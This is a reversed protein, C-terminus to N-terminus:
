SEYSGGTKLNKLIQKLNNISEELEGNMVKYGEFGNKLIDNFYIEEIELELIINSLNTDRKRTKDLSRRYRVSEPNAEILIYMDFLFYYEQPIGQEFNLIGNNCKNRIPLAYHGSVILDKERNRIFRFVEERLENRESKTLERLLADHTYERRFSDKMMEAFNIVEFGLNVNIKEILTDKGVGQVGGIHIKTM